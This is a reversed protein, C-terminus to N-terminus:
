RRNRQTAMWDAASSNAIETLEAIAAEKTPFLRATDSRYGFVTYGLLKTDGLHSQVIEAVTYGRSIHVINGVRTESPM